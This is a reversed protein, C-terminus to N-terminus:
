RPNKDRDEKRMRRGEEILCVLRDVEKDCHDAFAQITSRAEAAMAKVADRHDDSMKSLAAWKHALATDLQQDKATIAKQYLEHLEKLQKDKAPLHIFFIWALVLGLIGAGVWGSSGALVADVSQAVLVSVPIVVPSLKTLAVMAARM